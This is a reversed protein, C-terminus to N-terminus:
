ARRGLRVRGPRLTGIVMIIGFLWACGVIFWTNSGGMSFGTVTFFGVIVLAFVLAFVRQVTVATSLVKEAGPTLVMDLAQEVTEPRRVWEGGGSPPGYPAPNAYPSALPAALTGQAPMSAYPAPSLVSTYPSPSPMSQYAFAAYQSVPTPVSAPDVTPGSLPPTADLPGPDLPASSSSALRWLMTRSPAPTVVPEGFESATPRRFAQDAQAVADFPTLEPEPQYTLHSTTADEPMLARRPAPIDGEPAALGEPELDYGELAVHRAAYTTM